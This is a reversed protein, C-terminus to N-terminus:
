SFIKEQDFSFESKQELLKGFYKVDEPKFHPLNDLASIETPVESTMSRSDEQQQMFFGHMPSPTAPLKHAQIRLPIYGPPPDIIVYGDKPLMEDLESDSFPRNKYEISNKDYSFPTMQVSSQSAVSKSTDDWKIREDGPPIIQPTDDWRSKKIEDVGHLIKPTEDWRSKVLNESAIKPTEDWRSRKGKFEEIGNVIKPTADWRSGLTEEQSLKPTEDWRSRKRTQTSEVIKEKERKRDDLEQERERMVDGFSRDHKRSDGSRVFADRRDPSLPRLLRGRNHYDNGEKDVTNKRGPMVEGGSLTIADSMEEIHEQYGEYMNFEPRSMGPNNKELLRRQAEQIEAYAEEM